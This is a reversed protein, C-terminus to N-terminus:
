SNPAIALATRAALSVAVYALLLVAGALAVIGSILINRM